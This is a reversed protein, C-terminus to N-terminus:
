NKVNQFTTCFKRWTEEKTIKQFKLNLFENRLLPFNNIGDEILLEEKPVSIFKILNYNLNFNSRNEEESLWKEFQSPNSLIEIAKNESIIKPINDSKDGVLAKYAVYHYKPAQMYDKKIPNYIKCKKYGMQLIQIYDSDNTIVTIDENQLDECLTNIVDDCEYNDAKCFTFPLMKGLRVIENTDHYFKDHYEQKQATKVIRNAKYEPYLAYRHKPHGELVMFIKNPSFKEVLARTNIFFNNVMVYNDEESKESSSDKKGWSMNARWAQNLFDFILVKDM